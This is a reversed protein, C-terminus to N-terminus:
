DMELKDWCVGHIGDHWIICGNRRWWPPVRLEAFIRRLGVGRAKDRGL